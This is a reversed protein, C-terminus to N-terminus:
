AEIEEKKKQKNQKNKANPIKTERGPILGMGGATSTHLQLWQVM